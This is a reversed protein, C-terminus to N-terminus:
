RSEMMQLVHRAAIRYGCEPKNDKATNCVACLLQLNDATITGRWLKLWLSKVRREGNLPRIHDLTLLETHNEGCCQCRGGLMAIVRARYDDPVFGHYRALYAARADEVLLYAPLHM